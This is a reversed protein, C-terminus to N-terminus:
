LLMLDLLLLLLWRHFYKNTGVVDDDEDDDGDGDGHSGDDEQGQRQRKQASVREQDAEEGTQQEAQGSHTSGDAGHTYGDGGRRSGSGDGGRGDRNGSSGHAGGKGGDVCHGRDTSCVRVRVRVPLHVSFVVRPHMVLVALELVQTTQRATAM